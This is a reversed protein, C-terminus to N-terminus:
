FNCPTNDKKSDYGFGLLWMLGFVLFPIIGFVLFFLAKSLLYFFQDVLWIFRAYYRLITFWRLKKKRPTAHTFYKSKAWAPHHTTM